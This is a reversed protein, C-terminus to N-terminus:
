YAYFKNLQSVIEAEDSENVIVKSNKPPSEFNVRMRAAYEPTVADGRHILNKVIKADSATVCILDMDPVQATLYERHQQKYTAQTVVLRPHTRRLEAIRNAVIEFYRDRMEPTFTKKEAVAARMDDTMDADAHYVFRGSLRGILDGVFNKGAGTLGFLYIVSPAKTLELAPIGRSPTALDNETSLSLNM